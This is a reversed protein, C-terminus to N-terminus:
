RCAYARRSQASQGAAAARHYNRDLRNSQHIIRICRRPNSLVRSAEGAFTRLMSSPTVQEGRAYQGAINATTQQIIGPLARVLPRTVPNRRLQRVVNTAGRILQPVARSVASGIQPLIRTAMPILAGIFAEAEAESRTVTAAHGLHEMLAKAEADRYIRRVPNLEAELEGEFEDEYESQPGPSGAAPYLAARAVLQGLRAMPMHRAVNQVQRVIAEGEFESEFEWEFEPQSELEYEYEYM